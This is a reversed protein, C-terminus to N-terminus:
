SATWRGMTSRHSCASFTICRPGVARQRRAPHISEPSVASQRDDCQCLRSAALTVASPRLARRGREEAAWYVACRGPWRQGSPGGGRRRWAAPIGRFLPRLQPEGSLDSHYPRDKRAARPPRVGDTGGGAATARLADRSARRDRNRHGIQSLSSSKAQSDEHNGRPHRDVGGFGSEVAQRFQVERSIVIQHRSHLLASLPDFSQISRSSSLPRTIPNGIVRM